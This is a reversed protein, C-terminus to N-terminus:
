LSNRFIVQNGTRVRGGHQLGLRTRHFHRPRARTEEWERGHFPVGRNEKKNRITNKKYLAICSSIWQREKALSFEAFILFFNSGHLCFAIGGLAVADFDLQRLVLLWKPRRMDFCRSSPQQYVFPQNKPRDQHPQRLMGSKLSTDSAKMLFTWYLIFRRGLSFNFMEEGLFSNKLNKKYYQVQQNVRGFCSIATKRQWKSFKPYTQM